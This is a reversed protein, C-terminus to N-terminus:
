LSFWYSFKILFVNHPQIGFLEKMDQGYVFSGNDASSTRGQSWVLFLTSGPLYEWRVVLNSRFQRFNFDPNSFSYDTKGDRDEDVSYTNKYGNFDMESGSFLHYRDGFKDANTITTRKFNTYKGASVFPQGYYELSLEPTFTYNLRFTFSVTKQDLEAFLYRPDKAMSTTSVYQLESNSISYGPDFSISLANTPRVNVGMWYEQNRYSESDGLGQYNGINFSLKKSQDTSINLNFESGGPMTFSPGGRLLNTSINEGIRTFNGNMRWRNKFQSKFNTNAFTSLLKGSFNWYMWYNTNLYFNNFISFPERLYYAVWTGHHIVDSYRMYGIDNFELGPSRVTLSTEFQVKKKSSRGFKITGGYGSLSTLSSDVSVYNVDPRQYYRASSRQANLIAEEKGKIYSFEANATLYWTREKWKHSFDIGGTYAATPLYDLVPNKIDRNVATIIGGLVTEGKNFDKQLRGVFYNTLPEVSEKRRTGANDIVANENATVSELIGLSLGDKTKGSLKMAGLITTSEPVDAYEGDMLNPYNHPSRGIRRSYFLNDAGMNHIVISNSPQFQYINKGEVFFPRRESFYSEFATLNVESPDAEVQGFDPNISFDLTFDNTIAAKGDLGASIASKKGDLFPNNEEKQFRETRAVTYPLLEIQRKPQIGNIGHLEGFLHVIGPSGKPIFQWTSREELRFIHRMLQIGWIHEAKKGFRLQSFPIKMEACWGKDDISTKLYWIPNWSDDWNNGDQTIAEDGKAGAATATFSFATQQDYYSDINIEVMDGDFNDRRSIRRSIKDPETDFARIFVYLNNDDYLIKFSTQQSPPKNESPQTQIFDGSWEVKSWCSDNMLGDIEPATKAFATQYTKKQITQSYSNSFLTILLFTILIWPLFICKM